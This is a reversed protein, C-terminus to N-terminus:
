TARSVPVLVVIDAALGDPVEDDDGAVATSVVKEDLGRAPGNLTV